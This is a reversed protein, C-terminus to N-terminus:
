AGVLRQVRRDWSALAQEDVEGPFRRGMGEAVQAAALRPLMAAALRPHRALRAAMGPLQTVPLSDWRQDLGSRTMQETVLGARLMTQVGAGGLASSMRRLGDYAALLGGLEGQFLSQYGWLVAEDGPDDAGGVAEALVRGAILGVGIGSGHAPFVQCAADGVLALGPATFRAYPRRLPIVGSGSQVPEGIWPEDRRVADLMAPGTGHTGDALCGVLVSVHEFGESVKISRTSFGGNTGIVNVADGADAGYRDLFRKAGDTDAIRLHSDSASCLEDKAAPPCWRRLVASERRLAGRRGSADVFLAAEIRLPVPDGGAPAATLDLAVLRGDRWTLALDTAHEFREVGADGALARLRRGLRAMDVSAVPNRSVAPGRHGDPTFLYVAGTDSVREPPEPLSLHARAVQWDLLGNHWQAGGEDLPRREVLVVSRGRRALQYAANAGATGAGLVAADVQVTRRQM